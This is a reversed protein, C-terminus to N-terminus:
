PEFPFTQLTIIDCKLVRNIFIIYYQVSRQKLTLHKKSRSVQYQVFYPKMDPGLKMYAGRNSDQEYYNSASFVTIVQKQFNVFFDALVFYYYWWLELIFIASWGIIFCHIIQTWIVVYVCLCCVETSFM